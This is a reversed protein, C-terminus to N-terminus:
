QNINPVRYSEWWNTIAYTKVFFSPFFPPRFNTDALRDDFRYRKSFGTVLTSGSITGVPGRVDQVISGLIRLEGFLPGRNYGQATFSNDRTFICAHIDCNSNNAANDAVVVNWEAVLGLLDDSPGFRPNKEYTVDDDVFISKTLSALTLMGDLKGKVHITDRCALAGNFTSDGLRISDIITGTFSTNRVYVKGNGNNTDGASLTVWVSSTYKKGGNLSASDLAALNTPFDVSAVGTEYGKKFIARNTGVGVKPSFNKTTTVKEHFVPKGNVYITGNSHVRGWVTDATTWNVSNESNTMWAFISFTQQKNKDFFVEITDNLTEAVPTTPSTYTSISRLRVIGGGMGTMYYRVRGYFYPGDLIQTTDGFWTTDSYFRALGVNAGTSALNHSLTADAYSAMNGTANKAIRAMNLSIYGLILSFGIVTILGAKGVM